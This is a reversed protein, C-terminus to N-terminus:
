LLGSYVDNAAGARCCCAVHYRTADRAERPMLAVVDARAKLADKRSINHAATMTASAALLTVIRDHHCYFITIVHYPTHVHAHSPSLTTFLTTPRRCHAAREAPAMAGDCRAGYRSERRRLLWRHKGRRVVARQEGGGALVTTAGRLVSRCAFCVFYRRTAHRYLYRPSGVQRGAYRRLPPLTAAYLRLSLPPPPAAHCIAFLACLASVSFMADHCARRPTLLAFRHRCVTACRAAAAAAVHRSVPMILACSLTM